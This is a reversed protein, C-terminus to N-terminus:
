RQWRGPRYDSGRGPSHHRDRKGSRQDARWPRTQREPSRTRAHVNRTPTSPARTRRTGALPPTIPVRPALVLLGEYSKENVFRALWRVMQVVNWTYKEKAVTIRGATEDNRTLFYLRDTSGDQMFNHCEMVMMLFQDTILSKCQPHAIEYFKKMVKYSWLYDDILDIADNLHM